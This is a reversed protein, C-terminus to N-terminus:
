VLRIRGTLLEQMMGQKLAQYKARKQELAEIEADMDSLIDAIATQESKSPPFHLVIKAISNRNVGKVKTGVAYFKFQEKIDPSQFCYGKFRKDLLDNKSKAVITHLGSIFPVSKPNVIVVHKSAGEDDESADVFVVDGDHLMKDGSVKSLPIDLKPIEAYEKEVDIFQKDSGHINGYHLYCHGTVSLQAWSASYGGGFTFLDGLLKKRWVGSFGELRKRGTLLEQVAGRKINKKKNILKTLSHILGDIDSLATAIAQQEPLPPCLVEYLHIDNRNLTPVGSGTAFRELDIFSYLYFVYKTDNGRFDTVWLTTNHPWYNEDIYHVKGITGSRGTIVGPGRVVYTIHYNGVGNSYVVPYSGTELRKVPLDFGRQLPAIDGIKKQRWGNPVGIGIAM